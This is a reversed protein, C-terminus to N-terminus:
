PPYSIISHRSPSVAIVANLLALLINGYERLSKEVCSQIPNGDKLGIKKQTQPFSIIAKSTLNLGWHGWARTLASPWRQQPAHM